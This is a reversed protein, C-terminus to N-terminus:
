EVTLTTCYETSNCCLNIEVFAIVTHDILHNYNGFLGVGNISFAGTNINRCNDIVAGENSTYSFSIVYEGGDFLANLCGYLVNNEICHLHLNDLVLEM